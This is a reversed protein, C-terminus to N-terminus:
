RSEAGGGARRFGGFLGGGGSAGADPDVVRIEDGDELNRVESFPGVIILDGETVGSLAEFYRDGAIGTKVPLFVAKGQRAVFVGELEKAADNRRARGDVRAAASVGPTVGRRPAAEQHVVEGNADLVVERVTAAQIPIALADTRVATTIDATCTFGPRVSPIEDDLTVVVKFNTAQTGAGQTAQIPSNGIETVIGTFIQDPLADITVEATQGLEVSPIDTEDVEVEAELVSLDAITALVTGANNMTGIVVTEGEEINRRTVVGAFPSTITVKTLDYRASTLNAEEQSIRERQTEVDVERARLETERLTVDTLAREYAERSVLRLEWLNEQRVLNDRALQLNVRATDIAVELQRQSSRSARLSAEGRDVASRLTEPDIEMLFQGRAVRDGENFALRTVRGMTDASIDVTLQPVITGSASVIAQLSRREVAEVEVEPGTAREFTLNVYVLAGGVALVM